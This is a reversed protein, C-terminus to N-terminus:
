VSLDRKLDKVWKMKKLEKYNGIIKGKDVRKLGKGAVILDGILNEYIEDEKKGKSRFLYYYIIKLLLLDVIYTRRIARVFTKIYKLYDRGKIDAYLCVSIFKEYDTTNREEVDMKMKDRIVGSLKWTGMKDYLWIEIILPMFERSIELNEVIASDLTGKNKTILEEVLLKYLISIAMVCQVISIYSSDKLSEEEVEETNKLVRAALDVIRDMRRFLSINDEKKAIGKEPKMSDLVADKIEEIEEEKPKKESLKDVFSADLTSSISDVKLFPSDYSFQLKKIEEILDAYAINMRGVLLKLVGAEDRKLGTYYDIENCFILYNKEEFVHEKFTPEFDMKRALFFEFFCTFRFRVIAQIGENEKILIGKVLFHDLVEESVFDFKRGRLYSDIFSALESYPMGYNMRNSKYMQYAIESLLRVKNKFDFEGALIEKKSLKKFLREIFNELLTAHNIPKYDGQHEIIWLFMSVALPTRPINVKIFFSILKELKEPTDFDPNNSFWRKILEKIEKTRWSRINLPKFRNFIPMEVLEFPIEGEITQINTAIIQVSPYEDLFKELRRLEPIHSQDFSFDDVLLIVRQSNLFDKISTIGIGLFGSIVTEYRKTGIDEFNIYVPAKHYKHINSTLETLIKDLLVTKGSEKTGFILLNEESKGLDELSYTEEKELKAVKYEVKRVIRPLVFLSNLEKPAKTDTNFSLLHKNLDILVIDKIRVCISNESQYKIRTTSDPLASVYKGQDDGFDTNPVFSEKNHSYRRYHSTIQMNDLDIDVVTYGNNSKNETRINYTWNAPAISVFLSGYIGTKTWSAPEHVHGCFLLDYDKEIFPTVNTQDFTALWDLPHHVVAFKLDCKKIIERSKTVQREGLILKGKDTSTDYSRWTSNFCTIGISVNDVNLTFCSQYNSCGHKEPFSEYFAMEFEKFSLVRAIGKENKSDIFKNVEETTILVGRLGLDEWKEDSNRDIDHNGPALFIRHKPLGIEQMIPKIFKEEFTSLASKVNSGFSEGGKDILDGSFIILDIAKSQHFHYLDKKLAKIIFQELDPIADARLHLDSLHIVRIM